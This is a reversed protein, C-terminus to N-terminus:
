LHETTQTSAKPDSKNWSWIRMPPVNLLETERAAPGFIQVGLRHVRDRFQYAVFRGGPALAESACLLIEQGLSEPMTSFPIGSFIVDPQGLGYESLIQSIKTASGHHAILREDGVEQLLRVFSPNIEIALLKAKPNLARLVAKTTGGTGPGLEVVLKAEALDLVKVVRREM